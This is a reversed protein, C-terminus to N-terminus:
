LGQDAVLFAVASLLRCVEVPSYGGSVVTLSLEHEMDRSGNWRLLVLVPSRKVSWGPQLGTLAEPFFPNM